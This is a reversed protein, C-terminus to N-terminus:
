KELRQLSRRLINARDQDEKKRQLDAIGRAQIEDWQAKTKCERRAMISGTAVSMKCIKKGTVVIDKPAPPASGEQAMLPATITLSTITVM